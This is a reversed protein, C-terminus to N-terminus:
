RRVKPMIPMTIDQPFCSPELCSGGSCRLASAKPVRCSTPARSTTRRQVAIAMACEMTGRFIPRHRLPPLCMTPLCWISWCHFISRKLLTAKAACSSSRRWSLRRSSLHWLLTRWVNACTPLASRARHKWSGRIPLCLVHHPPATM